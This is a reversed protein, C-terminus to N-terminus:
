NILLEIRLFKRVTIEGDGRQIIDNPFSQRRNVIEMGSVVDLALTDTANRVADMINEAMVRSGANGVSTKRTVVELLVSSRWQYECKTAKEVENSQTTVLVYNLPSSAGTFSDYCEITNTDVILGDVAVVVAKRVWKDPLQKNM